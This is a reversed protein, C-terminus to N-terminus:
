VTAPPYASHAKARLSKTKGRGSADIIQVGRRQKTGADDSEAAQSHGSDFRAFAYAQETEACGSVQGDGNQLEQFHSTYTEM